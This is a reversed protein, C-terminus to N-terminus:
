TSAILVNQYTSKTVEQPVYIRGEKEWGNSPPQFRGEREVLLVPQSDPDVYKLGVADPCGSELVYYFKSQYLLVKDFCPITLVM